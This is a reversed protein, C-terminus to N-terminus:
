RDFDTLVRNRGVDRYDASHDFAAVDREPRPQLQTQGGLADRVRDLAPDDLVLGVALIALLPVLVELPHPRALELREYLVQRHGHVEPQLRHVLEDVPVAVNGEFDNAALALASDLAM